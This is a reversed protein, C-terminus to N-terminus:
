QQMESSPTEHDDDDVVALLEPDDLIDYAPDASNEDTQNGDKGGEQEASDASANLTRSAESVIRRSDDSVVGDYQGRGGSSGRSCERASASEASALGVSKDISAFPPNPEPRGNRSSEFHDKPPQVDPNRLVIFKPLFYIVLTAMADVSLLISRYRASNSAGLKDTLFFTILRLILFVFHSYTMIGLTQSENFEQRVNRMQVALVTASFLLTATWAFAVYDWIDSESSCYYTRYVITEDNTTESTSLTFESQKEPPDRATWIALYIVVLSTVAMVTGFLSKRSIMIKQFRRSAEMLRNVAAVKTLLPVLEVTYGGYVLWISAICTGDTPSVAVVLSGISMILLGLLLLWLFEIQAVVIVRRRRYRYVVASAVVGLGIAVGALVLASAYLTLNTHGNQIVRPYTQPVFERFTEFNDVVWQCTADRLAARRYPRLGDRENVLDFWTGYMPASNRYLNLAALAPSREAESISPDYTSQRLSSTVIKQLSQHPDDCAGLPDGVRTSFDASCEDPQPRKHELCTQTVPPLVVPYMEMDTGILRQYYPDPIGFQMIFDSKTANAAMLVEFYHSISYGRQGEGYRDGSLHINLHFLQQEAFSIWECPSDILHGTPPHTENGINRDTKRFHGTYLDAKFYM